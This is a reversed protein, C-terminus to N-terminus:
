TGKSVFPQAYLQLTLTPTATVDLRTTLATTTQELHAFTYHTAGGEDTFNGYWQRDDRNKGIDAGLHFLMQSSIRIGVEPSVSLNRSRGGDSRSYNLWIGPAFLKREDGMIGGWSSMVQDTRLAPGGRACRDCYVEGLGGWTM